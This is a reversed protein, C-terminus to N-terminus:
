NSTAPSSPSPNPSAAANGPATHSTAPAPSTNGPSSGSAHGSGSTTAPATQPTGSGQKSSPAPSAAPPTAPTTAPATPASQPSTPQTTSPAGPTNTPSTGPATAPASGTGGSGAPATTSPPAAAPHAPPPIPRPLPESIWKVPLTLTQVTDPDDRLKLYLVGDNTHPVALKTGTFDPPLDTSNEFDPTAAISSALFLNSGSLFCPKGAARPCRLEEFVPMRVLTGLPLWDGAVGNGALARVHIPGFASPGFRALPDVSGMATQADSLILSSDALSLVTHFSDDGGAVEVKEDRPFHVPKVSKLFFVLRGNLPLDDPSGLKVVSPADSTDLQVTKSLLAIQPRPPKVSVPVKLQRGDLLSVHAVYQRGPKLGGTSSDTKVTLQDLNQVRSLGAPAWAIGDLTVTAVEDLRTGKLWAEADGANLTLLDLSAADAYAKLALTEPKAIGYQYISITVPGPAADKMPVVANLTDPTPSKWVLKVPSDSAAEEELKDVCTTDQGEFHLTDNRGIVLASEDGSALAWRGPQSSRLHYRPGVWDDFGWKGRVEGILDGAPLLPAPEEVALGGQSPSVRLPLDVPASKSGSPPEIHLKLDHAVESAFVRPAGEAPLVLDPRQACFIDSPAVPHLPDPVAPGLPPLAVVVVSKPNRFSPPMNLRLNLTDGQPLALAPIYQFHATHLSGLIRVTDVIAGVYPSYIGGGAMTSYSLQNMLDAASGNTLQAVLSQENSDDLVLGESNKSLCAAQQDAPMSFCDMNLKIGLSRAAMQAHEKLLKPDTQSTIKVDSLYSELRLRERSAAELDQAARVFAGPRGRVAKRLTNFDGGTEPALFLLAQQAGTPVTVFVGESRVHSNWTEVRTFWNAPPPNTAGRLFAIVLVFHASQTPPLDPHVWLRDGPLLNPVQSIPLTVDGRKVHVDIKPGLLDFSSDAAHLETLAVFFLLLLQLWRRMSEITRIERGSTLLAM